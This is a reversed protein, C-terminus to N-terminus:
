SMLRRRLGREADLALTKLVQERDTGGDDVRCFSRAIEGAREDALVDPRDHAERRLIHQGIRLAPRITKVGLVTRAYKLLQRGQDVAPSAREDITEAMRVAAVYPNLVRELDDNVFM